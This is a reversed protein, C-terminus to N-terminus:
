KVRPKPKARPRSSSLQSAKRARKPQKSEDPLYITGADGNLRSQLRAEEPASLQRAPAAVRGQKGDATATVSAARGEGSDTSGSDGQRIRKTGADAVPQRPGNLVDFEADVIASQKPGALQRSAQEIVDADMGSEAIMRQATVDGAKARRALRLGAVSGGIGILWDSLGGGGAAAAAAPDTQQQQQALITPSLKELVSADGMEVADPNPRPTPVYEKMSDDIAEDVPRATPVPATDPTAAAAVQAPRAQPVPANGAQGGGAGPYPYATSNIGREAINHRRAIQDRIDQAGGGRQSQAGAALAQLIEQDFLGM